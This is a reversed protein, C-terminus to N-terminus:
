IDEPYRADYYKRLIRGLQYSVQPAKFPKTIYGASGAELCQKIIKDHTLASVMVVVAKSDFEIIEKLTDYGNKGPMTIDLTVIDFREKKYIDIADSGDPAENIISCGMEAAIGRIVKRQFMSDDVILISFASGDTKTIKGAEM